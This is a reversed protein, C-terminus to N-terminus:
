QAEIFGHHPSSVDDDERRRSISIPQAASAHAYTPITGNKHLRSRPLLLPAGIKYWVLEVRVRHRLQQTEGGIINQALVKNKAPRGSFRYTM